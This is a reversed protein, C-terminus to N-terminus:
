LNALEAIKMHKFVFRTFQIDDRLRESMDAESMQGSRFCDILLQYEREKELTGDKGHTNCDDFPRAIADECNCDIKM